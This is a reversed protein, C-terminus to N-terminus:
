LFSVSFIQNYPAVLYFYLFTGRLLYKGRTQLFVLPKKNCLLM